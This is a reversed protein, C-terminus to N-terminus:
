QTLPRVREMMVKFMADIMASNIDHGARPLLMFEKQPASIDDFYQEAIHPMTVLDESGQIIFIPVEFIMGLAPLDVISFMGDGNLGVFQIYSYDEGETYDAQMQPTDYDSSKVWDPKPDTTKGEYVRTARRLIGFNRPNEWPPPGIAELASLTNQDGAARALEIVKTYSAVLNERYNVMQMFGLYAHFLDPRSKVMHIGIISSWSGGWLIIKEKGLHQVLYEALEIGDKAMREITLTSDAILPNRSYTKGAGRQDWQVLTFTKEWSGFMSDAWPSLTNGPGGHLFLIVPNDCREGKITVWQEIGGITVFMEANVQQATSTCTRTIQESVAASCVMLSSAVLILATVLMALTRIELIKM